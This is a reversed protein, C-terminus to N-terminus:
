ESAETPEDPFFIAGRGGERKPFEVGARELVDQLANRLARYSDRRGGEFDAV